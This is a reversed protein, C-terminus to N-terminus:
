TITYACSRRTTTYAIFLVPVVGITNINKSSDNHILRTYGFGCYVGPVQRGVVLRHRNNLM